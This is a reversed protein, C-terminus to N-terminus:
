QPEEAYTMRTHDTIPCGCDQCWDCSAGDTNPGIVPHFCDGCKCASVLREPAHAIAQVKPMDYTALATTTDDWPWGYPTAAAWRAKIANLDASM